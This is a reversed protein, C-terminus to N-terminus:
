NTNTYLWYDVVSKLKIKLDSYSGPKIVYSNAKYSYAADLDKHHDSSSLVVRPLKNYEEKVSLAKLLDIGSVKPMNIDILLLHPRSKKLDGSTIKKLLDESDPVAVLNVNDFQRSIARTILEMDEVRDEIIFINKSNCTNNVQDM